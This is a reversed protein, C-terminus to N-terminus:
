VSVTATEIAAPVAAMVEATEGRRSWATPVATVSSSTRATAL